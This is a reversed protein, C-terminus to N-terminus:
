HNDEQSTSTHLKLLDRALRHNLEAETLRLRAARNTYEAKDVELRETETLAALEARRSAENKGELGALTHEAEAAALVGQDEHLQTQTDFAHCHARILTDTTETLLDHLEKKTMPTGKM